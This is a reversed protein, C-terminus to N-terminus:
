RRGARKSKRSNSKQKPWFVSDSLSLEGSTSPSAKLLFHSFVSEVQKVEGGVKQEVVTETDQEEAVQELNKNKSEVVRM